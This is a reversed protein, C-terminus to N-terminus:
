LRLLHGIWFELSTQSRLANMAGTDKPGGAPTPQFLLPLQPHSPEGPVLYRSHQSQGSLEAKRLKGAWCERPAVNPESRVDRSKM